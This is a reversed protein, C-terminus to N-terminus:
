AGAVASRVIGAILRTAPEDVSTGTPLVVVRNAVRETEPLNLHADPAITRYPEMRHCGPWFYRRALVNNERLRAIIDDRSAPCGEDVLMVVYQYNSRGSEGIPLVSIGPIGALASTYADYNRKNV